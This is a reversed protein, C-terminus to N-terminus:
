RDMVYLNVSVFRNAQRSDFREDRDRFDRQQHTTDPRSLRTDNRRERSDRFSERTEHQDRKKNDYM